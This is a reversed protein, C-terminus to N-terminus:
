VFFSFFNAKQNERIFNVAAKTYRRTLFSQDTGEEILKDNEYLPLPPSQYPPNRYLYGDMDNSYPVGFFYDFGHRNPMFQPHHGLHWKGICASQYGYNKLIEPLIQESPNLGHPSYPFLVAEHLGVRKPYCGTLLAARSPTCVTAPVYFDTFRIGERAMSDINPTRIDQAGYCGADGYGQDDTFIIIFNPTDKTDSCCFLIGSLFILLATKILVELACRRTNQLGIMNM